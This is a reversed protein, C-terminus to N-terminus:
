RRRGFKTFACSRYIPRTQMDYEQRTLLFWGDRVVLSCM